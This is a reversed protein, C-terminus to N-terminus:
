EGYFILLEVRRNKAREEETRNENLPEHLGKGDTEIRESDVGMSVLHDRISNARVLSLRENFRASGINDTHGTLKIRLHPNEELAAVLDNLYNVSEEDLETSNFAFNFHLITKEIMLPAHGIKGAEATALVSDQKHQLRTKLNTQVKQKNTLSITSDPSVKSVTKKEIDKKVQTNGKVPKKVPARRSYTRRKVKPNVWKRLEVGVEFANLNAINTKVVPFDYSAGISLRESHLQFGVVGSRGTVYKTIIDLRSAPQNPLSQLFYSTVFGVNLVNLSASRTFLFEPTIALSKNEYLRLGGDIIFTSNLQSEIGSFSDQPKNFDFISVGFYALRNGERDTEQWHLGTSFTFFDSRLFQINEGNFISHDFGRDPIFQSGTFLGDLNIKRQQYLGKFGLTLSQFRSLFVNVGYALAAEQTSFIGGARDDMFSVGVGSWRQGTKPNIIPYTGSLFSSKLRMDGGAAQQRYLMGLSAYDSSAVLAPNIRQSTFNYQSFQFYQSKVSTCAILIGVVTIFWFKM